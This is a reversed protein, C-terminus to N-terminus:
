ISYVFSNGMRHARVTEAKSRQQNGKTPRLGHEIKYMQMHSQLRENIVKALSGLLQIILSNVLVRRMFPLSIGVHICRGIDTIPSLASMAHANRSTRKQCKASM